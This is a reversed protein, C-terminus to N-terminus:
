IHKLISKAIDVAHAKSQYNAEVLIHQKLNTYDLNDMQLASRARFKNHRTHSRHM